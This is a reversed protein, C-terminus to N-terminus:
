SSCSFAARFGPRRYSAQSPCARRLQKIDRNILDALLRRASDDRDGPGREMRPQLSVTAQHNVTLWRLGCYDPLDVVAFYKSQPTQPPDTRLILGCLRDPEIPHASFPRHQLM